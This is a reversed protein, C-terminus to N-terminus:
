ASKARSRKRKRPRFVRRATRTLSVCDLLLGELGRVTARTRDLVYPAFRVALLFVGGGASLQMLMWIESPTAM